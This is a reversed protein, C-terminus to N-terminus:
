HDTTLPRLGPLAPTGAQSTAKAVYHRAYCAADTTTVRPAFRFTYVPLTPM